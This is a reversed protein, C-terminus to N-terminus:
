VTQTGTTGPYPAPPPVVIFQQTATDYYWQDAVVDDACSTWFLPAAVEFQSGQPVVEAVRASNEIPTYIPLYKPSAQPNPNETWSTVVQVIETPDILAEKM